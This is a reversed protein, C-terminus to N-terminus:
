NTTRRKYLKITQYGIFIMLAGIAILNITSVATNPANLVQISVDINVDGEQDSLAFEYESVINGNIIMGEQYNEPTETEVLIYKGAPLAYITWDETASSIWKLENGDRDLVPSRDNANLLQLHAGALKEGTVQDVKSITIKTPQNTFEVMQIGSEEKVKFEVAKTQKIYGEPAITEILYYSGPVLKEITHNETPLTIWEWDDKSPVCNIGDKNYAESTCIKLEAGAVEEGTVMDTKKIEVRTYDNTILMKYKSTEVNEIKEGTVPDLVTINGNEDMQFDISTTMKIYGEPAITEELTYKHGPIIGIFRHVSDDSSVWEDVILPSETGDDNKFTEEADYIKLEAGGIEAGTTVDTKSIDLYNTNIITMLGVGNNNVPSVWTVESLFEIVEGDIDYMFIPAYDAFDSNYYNTGSFDEHIYYMSSADLSYIGDKNYYKEYNALDTCPKTLYGNEDTIACIYLYKEENYKLVEKELYDGIEIRIGSVNNGQSDKKQIKFTFVDDLISITADDVIKGDQEIKITGDNQKVVDFSVPTDNLKYNAPPLIEVLIYKGIPLKIEVNAVDKSASDVTRVIDGAENKIALVAGAVKSKTKSDLKQVKVAGYGEHNGSVMISKKMSDEKPIVITIDQTSSSSTYNKVEYDNIFKSSTVDFSAKLVTDVDDAPSNVRIKFKFDKVDNVTIESKCEEGLLICAGESSDSTNIKITYTVTNPLNSDISFYENSLFYGESEVLESDNNLINMKYQISEEGVNLLKNYLELRKPNSNLWKRGVDSNASTKWIALQTVAYFESKTLGYNNTSGYLGENIANVMIKKFGISYGDWTNTEHYVNKSYYKGPNLCFAYYGSDPYTNGSKLGYKKIRTNTSSNFKINVNPDVYLKMDQANVVEGGIGMVAIFIFILCLLKFVKKM